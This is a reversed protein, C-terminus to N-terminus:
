WRVDMGAHTEYRLVVCARASNGISIVGGGVGRETTGGVCVCVCVCCVVCAGRARESVRASRRERTGGGYGGGHGARREVKLGCLGQAREGLGAAHEFVRPALDLFVPLARLEARRVRERAEGAEERAGGLQLGDAARELLFRAEGHEEARAGDPLHAVCM